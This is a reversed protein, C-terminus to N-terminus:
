SGSLPTGFLGVALELWILLLLLLLAAILVFRCKRSHLRRWLVDIILGTSLLLVAAVIFDWLDWHVEKTFQMAILPILLISTVIILIIHIRKIKM